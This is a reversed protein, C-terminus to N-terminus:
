AVLKSAEVTGMWRDEMRAAISCGTERQALDTYTEALCPHRTTLLRLDAGADLLMHVMDIRNSHIAVCLANWDHPLAFKDVSAGNKLLEHVIEAAGVSVAFMLPTWGSRQDQCEVDAGLQLLASVAALQRRHTAIILPPWGNSDALELVGELSSEEDAEGAIFAARSVRAATPFRESWLVDLLARHTTSAEPAVEYETYSTRKRNHYVRRVNPPPPPVYFCSKYGSDHAFGGEKSFSSVSEIHRNSCNCPSQVSQM